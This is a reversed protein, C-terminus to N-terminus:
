PTVGTGILLAESHRLQDALSLCATASLYLEILIAAIFVKEFGNIFRRLLLGLVAGQIELVYHWVIAGLLGLGEASPM